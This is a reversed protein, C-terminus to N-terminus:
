TGASYYIKTEVSRDQKNFECDTRYTNSGIVSTITGRYVGEDHNGYTMKGTISATGMPTIMEAVAEQQMRNYETRGSMTKSSRDAAMWKAEFNAGATKQDNKM